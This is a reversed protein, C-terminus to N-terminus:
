RSTLEFQLEQNPVTATLGSTKTNSYKEPVHWIVKIGEPSTPGFPGLGLTEKKTITVRHEGLKAGDRNATRLKFRGSSDTSGSAPPGGEVPTFLVGAEAVPKGDLTVAGEAPRLQLGRDCGAAIVILSLLLLLSCTSKKSPCEM